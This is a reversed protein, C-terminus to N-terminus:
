YWLIEYERNLCGPSGAVNEASQHLTYIWAIIILSQRLVKSFFHHWKHIKERGLGNCENRWSITGIKVHINLFVRVEEIREDNTSNNIISAWLFYQVLNSFRKRRHIHSNSRQNMQLQSSLLNVSATQQHAILLTTWNFIWRKYNTPPFNTNPQM